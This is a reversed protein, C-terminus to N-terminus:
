TRDRTMQISHSHSITTIRDIGMRVTMVGELSGAESVLLELVLQQQLLGDVSEVERRCVHDMRTLLPPNRARM